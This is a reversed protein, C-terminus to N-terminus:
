IIVFTTNDAPPETFATVTFKGEGTDLAYDTIDTYQGVLAGSTPVFLRGNYHDATAETVDDSYIVTTTANVNDWSVTGTIMTTAGPSLLDTVVKIADLLVDLRGGDIWDTLIAARVATLRAADTAITNLTGDDDAGDSSGMFKNTPLKGQIESTDEVILATETKVAAIDASISAGVAAGLVSALAANDTGVMVDSAILVPTAVDFLKKFAAALQGATETLATGHIHTLDSKIAGDAINVSAALLANNTGVMAPIDTAAAITSGPLLDSISDLISAGNEEMEAQIETVTPPTTTNASDTGRMFRNEISFTGIWANITAGDITTGNIRVQYDNGTAFWGADTVNSTDVAILHSGNNAGINLTLTVGAGPTTQVVGNKWVEVDGQALNTITVSASPDNSDFTNFPIYVTADDVFDGFYNM